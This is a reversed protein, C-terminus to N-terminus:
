LLHLPRCYRSRVYWFLHSGSHVPTTSFYTFGSDSFHSFSISTRVTLTLDNLVYSIRRQTEETSTRTSTKKLTTFQRKFFDFKQKRLEPPKKTDVDKQGPQKQFQRFSKKYKTCTSLHMYIPSELSPRQHEQVREILQRGTMGIYSSEQCPCQWKYIVNNQEFPSISQKLSGSILNSLKKSRYCVNINFDPLLKQM